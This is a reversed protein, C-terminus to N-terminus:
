ESREKPKKQIHATSAIAPLPPLNVGAETLIHAALARFYPYAAFKGVNKCFGIAAAETADEALNYSVGYEAAFSIVRKRLHKAEVHYQFIAVVVNDEGSYQCGIIKRGYSLKVQDKVDWYEPEIGFKSTLLRISDLESGRAVHNYEDGSFGGKPLDQAVEKSIDGM